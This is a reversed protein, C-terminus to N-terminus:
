KDDRRPYHCYPICGFFYIFEAPHWTWVDESWIIDLIQDATQTDIM